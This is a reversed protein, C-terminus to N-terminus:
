GLDSSDKIFTEADTEVPSVKPYYDEEPKKNSFIKFLMIIIFIVAVLVIGITLIWKWLNSDEEVPEEVADVIVAEEVIPEEVVPEEVITNNVKPTPAGFYGYRATWGSPTSGGGGNSSQEKRTGHVECSVIYTDPILAPNTDIIVLNNEQTFNLGNSYNNDLHTGNSDMVYCDRVSDAFEVTYSEGAIMAFVLPIALMIILILIIQKKM